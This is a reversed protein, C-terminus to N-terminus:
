ASGERAQAIGAESALAGILRAAQVISLEAASELHDLGLTQAASKHRADRDTIGLKTFLIGIRQLQDPLVTAPMEEVPTTWPDDAQPGRSREAQRNRVEEASAISQSTDAALAAVIARGWASTEANMLESGRTYPTRGPYVESACGIGPRPDDPTRYAAATYTVLIDTGIERFQYPKDIDAPQLSGEPHKARFQAIRQAVPVYDDLDPKNTM